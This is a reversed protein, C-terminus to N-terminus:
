EITRSRRVSLLLSSRLLFDRQREDTSSHEVLENRRAERAAEDQEELRKKNAITQQQVFEVILPRRRREYRDLLSSDAGNMTVAELTDILEVADHIGCNLGLGGIPNNVHASDGALFVRGRRFEAAVRQHVKYLNRHAVDAHGIGPVLRALREDASADDLAEDDTEGVRAPFVARWRRGAGDEGAVKFLNTWEDPDAFYSRLSCGILEDFPAETTLVLFREPWTYGPFDIGLSKRVASRGGDCAIVYDGTFTQEGEGTEVVVSADDDTQAVSVVTAPRHVHADPFDALRRLGIKVLKHQETQVVFPFPTEDRLVDHDFRAVLTRSPKDWFDVHRAVLGAAIFDDVIGLPELMEITSPHFTSARPSPDPAPQAELVTVRFGRRAADLAAVTGVPGAGVVIVHPPRSV